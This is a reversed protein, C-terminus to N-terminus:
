YEKGGLTKNVSIKSKSLSIDKKQFILNLRFLEYKFKKIVDSSPNSIKTKSIFISDIIDDM